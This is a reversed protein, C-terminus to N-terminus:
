ACLLRDAGEADGAEGDLSLRQGGLTLHSAGPAEFRATVADVVQSGVTRGFRVLWASPMPDSNEITGFAEGDAIVAGTANFLSFKVQEGGDDVADDLVAVSVTKSTEGAAFSLTGSAAEYDEGATASGFGGDRVGGDGAGVGGPRADGRLGADGGDGENVTADAVSLAPPGPVTATLSNSM